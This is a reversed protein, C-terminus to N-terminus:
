CPSGSGPRSRSRHWSIRFSPLPGLISALTAYVAFDYWELLNGVAIAVVARRRGTTSVTTTTGTPASGLQDAVATTDPEASEAPLTM